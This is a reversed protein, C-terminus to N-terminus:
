AGPQTRVIIGDIRNRTRERLKDLAAQALAETAFGITHTGCSHAPISEPLTDPACIHPNGTTWFILAFKEMMEVLLRSNDLDAM